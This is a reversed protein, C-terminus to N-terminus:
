DRSQPAGTSVAAPERVLTWVFLLAVAIWLAALPLLAPLGVLGMAASFNWDTEGLLFGPWVYRSFLAPYDFRSFDPALLSELPAGHPREPFDAVMFNMVVHVFVAWGGAILGVIRAAPFALAPLAALALFPVSLALFRPALGWGGWWMYYGSNYLFLGLFVGGFILTRVRWVVVRRWAVVMGVFGLLLHPSHYFLGRYPHFALLWAVPLRPWTAGMLGRRMAERFFPELEYEYPVSMRGFVCWCYAAFPVLPVIAAVLTVLAAAGSRRRWLYFIGLLVAPWAALYECLVACGLMVGVGADRAITRRRLRAAVPFSGDAAAAPQPAAAPAGAGEILWLAAMLFFTAPLYPMFVGGYLLLMSGCFTFLTALAAVAESPRPRMGLAGLYRVALRYFLAAAAAGMLAVSFAVVLWNRTAPAFPAGRAREVLRVAALAPVGALATGFIKDSYFHGGITAVDRTALDPRQWYDDIRMTGQDVLACTLCLRSNANWGVQDHRVYVFTLWVAAAVLLTRLAVHRRM